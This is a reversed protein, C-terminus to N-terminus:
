APCRLLPVLLEAETLGGHQGPLATLGPEAAPRVLVTTGHPVAVVDGIRPRVRDPVPGFWGADVAEDRSRVDARDGLTGRWAALVDAAAGPRAYVHRARPEGALLRVGAALAPEADLDLRDADTVGLM